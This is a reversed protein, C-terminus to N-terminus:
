SDLSPDDPNDQSTESDDQLGMLFHRVHEPLAGGKKELSPRLHDRTLTEVDKVRLNLVRLWEENYPKWLAEQTAGGIVDACLHSIYLVAVLLRVENPIQEPPTFVPYDQMEVTRCVNEPINWEQLLLAGLKASDLLDILVSLKPNQKKMLLLVSKGIDHLLAVTSLMSAQQRTVLHAIEYAVHSIVVSHNHLARFPPTNPMTRRLGDAIVLQYVQNFGLLIVAHQFDSIKKQWNYYASNVRKLVASVLSPDNKALAAVEKASVNADLLMQALRSAYMPLQPVKKLMGVIMESQTYDQTREVINRRAFRTMFDCQASLNEVRAQHEHLRRQYFDSLKKTLFAILPPDLTELVAEPFSLVLSAQAAVAATLTGSNGFFLSGCFVDGAQCQAIQRATTGSRKLLRLSGKLVLHITRDREGERFLVDGAGLNKVAGANYLGILVKEHIGPLGKFWDHDITVKTTGHM